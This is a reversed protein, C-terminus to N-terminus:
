KVRVAKIICPVGFHKTLGLKNFMSEIGKTFELNNFLRHVIVPLVHMRKQDVVNFDNEKLVEKMDCLSMTKWPQVRKDFIRRIPNIFAVFLGYSLVPPFEIIVANKTVRCMEGVSKKWDLTHMITRFSSCYDFEKEPFPLNMADGKVFKVEKNKYRAIRLMEESADIGIVNYGKKTLFISLRGTGCGVDLVKGTKGEILHYITKKDWSDIYKGIKDGFRTKDYKNAYEPKAYDEFGYHKKM